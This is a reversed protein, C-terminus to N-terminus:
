TKVPFKVDEPIRGLLGSGSVQGEGIKAGVMICWFGGKSYPPNLTMRDEGYRLHKKGMDKLIESFAHVYQEPIADAKEVKERYKGMWETKM